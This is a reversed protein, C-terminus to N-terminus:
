VTIPRKYDPCDTRAASIKDLTCPVAVTGDDESVSIAAVLVHPSIDCRGEAILIQDNEEIV